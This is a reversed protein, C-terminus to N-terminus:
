LIQKGLKKRQMRMVIIDIVHMAIGTNLIERQMTRLRKRQFISLIGIDGHTSNRVASRVSQPRHVTQSYQVEQMIM